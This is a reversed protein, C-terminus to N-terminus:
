EMNTRPTIVDPVPVAPATIVQIRAVIDNLYNSGRGVVLGTLIAGVFPVSAAYGLIALLDANYLICVIVGVIAAIYRKYASPIPTGFYEVLGETLVALVFILAIAQM